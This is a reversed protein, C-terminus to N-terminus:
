LSPTDEVKRRQPLLAVRARQASELTAHYSSAPLESFGDLFLRSRVAATEPSFFVAKLSDRIVELLDSAIARSVVWPPAATPATHALVRTAWVLEPHHRAVFAYTVCDIAAVDAAGAAVLRLSELHAGSIVLRAFLPDGASSQRIWDGLVNFGTNSGVDNIAVCAGRLDEVDRTPSARDVVM